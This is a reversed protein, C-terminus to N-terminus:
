GFLLNLNKVTQTILESNPSSLLLNGRIIFVISIQTITTLRTLPVKNSLPTMKPCPLLIVM